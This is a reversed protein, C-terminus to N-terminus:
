EALRSIFRNLAVLRGVLRQALKRSTPPEMSLIADIKEPNAKIGRKSILCGLLKGKSSWIHM